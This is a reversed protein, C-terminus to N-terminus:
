PVVGGGVGLHRTPPVVAGVLGGVAVPEDLNVVAFVTLQGFTRGKVAQAASLAFLADLPTLAQHPGIFAPRPLVYFLNQVRHAITESLFINSRPKPHRREGLPYTSLIAVFSLKLKKRKNTRCTYEICIV